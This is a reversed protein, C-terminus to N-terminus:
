GQYKVDILEDRYSGTTWTGTDQYKYGSQEYAARIANKMSNAVDKELGTAVLLVEWGEKKMKANKRKARDGNAETATLHFRKTKHFTYVIVAHQRDDAM